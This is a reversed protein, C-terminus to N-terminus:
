NLNWSRVVKGDKIVGAIQKFRNDSNFKRILWKASKITDVTGLERISTSLLVDDFSFVVAEVHPQDKKVRQWKKTLDENITDNNLRAKSILENTM